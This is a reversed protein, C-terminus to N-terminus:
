LEDPLAAFPNVNNPEPLLALKVDEDNLRAYIARSFFDTGPAAAVIKSWVPVAEDTKQDLLLAYGVATLRLQELAPNALMREARREWEDAAASPLAAFRILFAAPTTPAGALAADKAAAARDGALLDWVVLQSKSAADPQRALLAAAQQKRGTRYLWDAEFLHIEPAKSKERAARFQAFLADASKRDGAYFKAWAAKYLDGGNQFAPSKANAQLYSAAADAYKGFMYHVDGLSDAPNPDAPRLRAYEKLAAAAGGYDGGWARTYGLQNWAEPDDPLIAALKNWEDAAHEFEGARTDEVAISRLLLTDGPSLASIQRLAALRDDKDNRLVASALDLNAQNFQDFRQYTANHLLSEAAARNGRAVNTNVLLVWAPGFHSDAAVSRELDAVAQDGSGEFGKVYYRLADSNSTLYPQASPSFERSLRTLAEMVTAGRADLSLISRRSQADIEIGVIRVSNGPGKEIYGTILRTAGALLAEARESSIGPVNVPRPGLTGSLRNLASFNLVPGNMAGALSRALFESSARAAWELTPDGSLNEFRLVM